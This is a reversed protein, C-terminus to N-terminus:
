NNHNFGDIYASLLANNREFEEGINECMDEILIDISLNKIKNRSSKTISEITPTMAINRAHRGLLFASGITIDWDCKEMIDPYDFIGKAIEPIEEYSKLLYCIDKADRKRKDADRETWAIIKLLSLGPPTAVPIDIVPTAQIRVQVANDLAEQFGLVNMVVEGDPPWNINANEDEVQGFPIIDIIMKQPSILRHRTETETFGTIILAKRISNFSNWNAVQIGFDFDATARRINAGYGYHLVLDRASAGVVVYPINLRAAANNVATYLAISKQDIKGSINLLTNNM